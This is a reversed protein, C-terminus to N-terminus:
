CEHAEAVALLEKRLAVYQGSVYDFQDALDEPVEFTVEIADATLRRVEAVRLSHFTARRRTTEPTAATDTM